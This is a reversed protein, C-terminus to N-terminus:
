VMHVLDFLFSLANDPRDMRFRYRYNTGAVSAVGLPSYRNRHRLRRERSGSRDAGCVATEAEFRLKGFLKEPMSAQLLLSM